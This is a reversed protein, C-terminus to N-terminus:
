GPKDRNQESERDAVPKIPIQVEGLQRAEPTSPGHYGLRRPPGDAVWEAKHEDLWTRLKAVSEDLRPETMKGQIGLCVFKSAPRDEVKVTGGGPGVEGQDLRRYLFEMSSEAPGGPRPEATMIVPATMAIQKRTIHIFLPGFLQEQAKMSGAPGRAVASRYAPYSKVEIAGPRTSGPWGEPLPADSDAAAPEVDSKVTPGDDARAIAGTLALAAALCTSWRLM